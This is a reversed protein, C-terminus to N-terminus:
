VKGKRYEAPSVGLVKKFATSFYHQSSYGIQEAIEYIKKHPDAMLSIAMNVRVQTLYDIFSVGIEQKLLRSLYTASIQMEEALDQLSLEEKYYNKEIYKQSLLVIPTFSEQERFSRQIEEYAAALETVPNDVSKKQVLVIRKLYKEIYKELSGTLELLEESKLHGVVVIDGASSTIIYSAYYRRCVEETINELAFLLLQNDWKNLLEGKNFKEIVKIVLLVSASKFPLSFFDLQEQIEAPLLRAGLWDNLFQAQLYPMSKELQQNAIQMKKHQSYLVSLEQKAREVVALLQQRSVPKLLYDFVQLKVAQQAYTFEDHGTIIIVICDQVARNLQEIFQLGNLFPMCIDVLLIDPQINKAMELAIEGDEAEGVISLDLEAWDLSNRLGKRIKPEDDAILVKWM